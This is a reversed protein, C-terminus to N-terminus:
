TRGGRNRNNNQEKRARAYSVFFRQQAHDESIQKELHKMAATAQSTSDLNIFGTAPLSGPKTVLLFKDSSHLKYFLISLTYPISYSVLTSTV